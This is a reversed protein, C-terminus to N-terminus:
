TWLENIHTEGTHSGTNSWGGAAVAGIELVVAQVRPSRLRGGGRQIRPTGHDLVPTGLRWWGRLRPTIPVINVAKPLPQKSLSPPVILTFALEFIYGNANCILNKGDGGARGGGGCATFTLPEQAREYM